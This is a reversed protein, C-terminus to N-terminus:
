FKKGQKKVMPWEHSFIYYNLSKIGRVVDVRKVRAWLPMKDGGTHESFSFISRLMEGGPSCSSFSSRLHPGTEPAIKIMARRYSPGGIPDLIPENSIPIYEM